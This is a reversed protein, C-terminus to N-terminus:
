SCSVDCDEVKDFQSLAVRLNPLGRFEKRPTLGLSSIFVLKSKEDRWADTTQDVLEVTRSV